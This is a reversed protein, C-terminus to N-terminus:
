AFLTKAPIPVRLTLWYSHDLGVKEEITGNIFQLRSEMTKLIHDTPRFVQLSGSNIRKERYSIVVQQQRQFLRIEVADLTSTPSASTLLDRVTRFLSMEMMLSLQATAEAEQEFLIPKGHAAEEEECLEKLAPGLGFTELTPPLLDQSLRRASGITSGVVELIQNVQDKGEPIKRSLQHLYLNVVNLGAHIEDHLNRALRKKEEEYSYLSTSLLSKQYELSNGQADMLKEHLRNRSVSIYLAIGLGIVLLVGIELFMILVLDSYVEISSTM